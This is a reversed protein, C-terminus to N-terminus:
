RLQSQIVIDQVRQESITDQRWETSAERSDRISQSILAPIRFALNRLTNLEPAIHKRKEMKHVSENMKVLQEYNNDLPSDWM